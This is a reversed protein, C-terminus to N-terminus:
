IKMFNLPNLKPKKEFLNKNQRFLFLKGIAYILGYDAAFKLDMILALM